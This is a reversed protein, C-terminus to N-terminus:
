TFREWRIATRKLTLSVRITVSPIAADEDLCASGEFIGLGLNSLTDNTDFATPIPYVQLYVEDPPHPFIEVLLM